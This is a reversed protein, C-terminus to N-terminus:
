EWLKVYWDMLPQLPECHHYLWVVPAYIYNLLQLDSGTKRFLLLVPGISLFYLLPLLACIMLVVFTLGVGGRSSSEASHSAEGPM